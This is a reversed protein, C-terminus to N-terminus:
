FDRVDGVENRWWKKKVDKLKWREAIRQHTWFEMQMRYQDPMDISAIVIICRLTTHLNAYDQEHTHLETM